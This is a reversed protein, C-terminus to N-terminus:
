KYFNKVCKHAILYNTKYLLKNDAVLKLNYNVNKHLNNADVTADCNYWVNNIKVQNWLHGGDSKAGGGGVTISEIGVKNLLINLLKTYGECLCKKNFLGGIITQNEVANDDVTNTSYRINNIIYDYIKSFKDIETDKINVTSIIHEVKKLIKKYTELDFIDNTLVLKREIDYYNIVDINLRNKESELYNKWIENNAYSIQGISVGRINYKDKVTKLDDINNLEVIIPHNIFKKIKNLDNINIILKSTQDNIKNIENEENIRVYIDNKFFTLFKILKNYTEVNSFYIKFRDDKLYEKINKLDNITFDIEDKSYNDLELGFHIFALDYDIPKEGYFDILSKSKLTIM